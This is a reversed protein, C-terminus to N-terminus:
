LSYEPRQSELQALIKGRQLKGLPSLPVQQFKFVKQVRQFALLTQNFREVLDRAVAGGGVLVLEFGHREHPVAVIYYLGPLQHQLAFGDWAAQMAAISVSEGNIKVLETERGQLFLRQNEIRGRDDCLYWGEKKPDVFESLGERPVFLYGTLLAPSLFRLRQQGDDAWDIVHPLKRLGEEPSAGVALMACTETMGYSLTLPWGLGCAQRWLAMSLAGGGVFIHRVSRPAKEKAQVLDYIQTPVLSSVTINKAEVLRTFQEANWTWDDLTEVKMGAIFARAWVSLGAIHFIPLANLYIDRSTLHFEKTVAQAAALVADKSLAILKTSTLTSSETGSSMLWIHSTLNKEETARTLRGREAATMKPNLFVHTDRHSFIGLASDM